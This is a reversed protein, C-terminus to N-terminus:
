DGTQAHAVPPAEAATTAPMEIVPPDLTATNAASSTEADSAEAARGADWHAILGDALARYDQAGACTPEYDFISNGFSPAEALKVNRRIPPHLVRCNRWPVDQERASEFFAELDSVVERALTTQREHMCLVIGSVALDRNVSRCVLGVTELLKGVGQLALFHAQMPVFVEHAMALANLTLLGLSPPCDILVVDYSALAEALRRRLLNQRGAVAALETEAAALDTEATILDLNPRAPIIASAVDCDPDILLDYVTTAIADADVGFHLTLHAQPDLDIACVRLGREALAAAMNVTSTTKGVGGKQNLMAVVRPGSRAGAPAAAPSKRSHAQPDM